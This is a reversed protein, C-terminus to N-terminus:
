PRALAARLDQVERLQNSARDRAEALNAELQPNRVNSSLDKDFTDLVARCYNIQEELYAHDFDSGSLAELREVRRASVTRIWASVRSEKAKVRLTRMLQDDRDMREHHDAVVSEAFAKIRPDTAKKQALMGQEVEAAHIARLAGFTDALTFTSTASTTRPAGPPPATEPECAASVLLVVSALLSLSARAIM